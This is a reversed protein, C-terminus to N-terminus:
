WSHIMHCYLSRVMNILKCSFFGENYQKSNNKKILFLKNNINVKVNSVDANVVNFLICMTYPTEEMILLHNIIFCQLKHQM